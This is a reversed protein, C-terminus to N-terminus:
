KLFDLIHQWISFNFVDTAKGSGIVGYGIMTGIIFLLMMLLIVSFIIILTRLIYRKTSM